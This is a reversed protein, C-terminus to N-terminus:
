DSWYSMEEDAAGEPDDEYGESIEAYPSAGCIADLCAGSLRDGEETRAVDEFRLRYRKMWEEQTV